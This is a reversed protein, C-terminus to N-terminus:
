YGALPAENESNIFRNALQRTANSLLAADVGVGIFSAGKKAYAHALKEDVALVGAAKGAALITEFGAEIAKVVEPHGPQGIYGMSASLDSPGIFVADVGEVAVIEELNEMAKATEAQVILCIEKNANDLYGPIGNWRAARAM